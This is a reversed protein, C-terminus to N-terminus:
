CCPLLQSFHLRLMRIMCVMDFGLGVALHCILGSGSRQCVPARFICAHQQCLPGSFSACHGLIVRGSPGSHSACHGCSGNPVTARCVYHRLSGNVIPVTALFLHCLPGSHTACHGLKVSPVSHGSMCFPATACSCNACHGLIALVTARPFRLTLGQLAGFTYCLPGFKICPVSQGSM